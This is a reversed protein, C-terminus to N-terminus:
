RQAEAARLSALLRSLEENCCREAGLEREAADRALLLERLQLGHSLCVFHHAACVMCSCPVATCAVGAARVSAQDRLHSVTARQRDAQSRAEGADSRLREAAETLGAPGIRVWWCVQSVSM